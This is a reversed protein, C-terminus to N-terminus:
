LMVEEDSQKMFAMCILIILMLILSLVSGIHFNPEGGMFYIDILDGILMNKAGGLKQSIVFTSAAPVFVMTIGNIIGPVSLPLLVRRFVNFGNCGLDRSAEILSNDIKVMINYLPIIMFPLFNYVMGIIIAGETNIMKLPETIGLLNFIGLAELINNIIGNKELLTMWAYTRLLFNMWMPLMILMILTKQTIWSTRSIIYAMPYGVVLCIVTAILALKLSRAFVGAFRGAELFWSLTFSGDDATFAFYLVFCLPVVIFVISWVIHPIALAKNKM